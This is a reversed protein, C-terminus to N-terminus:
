QAGDEKFEKVAKQMSRKWGNTARIKERYKLRLFPFAPAQRSEM